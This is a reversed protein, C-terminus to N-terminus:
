VLAGSFFITRLIEYIIHVGMRPHHLSELVPTAVDENGNHSIAHRLTKVSHDSSGARKAVLVRWTCPWRYKEMETLSGHPEQPVDPTQSGGPASALTKSETNSEKPRSSINQLPPELPIETRESTHRVKGISIM